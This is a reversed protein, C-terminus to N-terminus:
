KLPTRLSINWKLIANSMKRHILSIDTHRSGIGVGEQDWEWEVHVRVKGSGGEVFPRSSEDNSKRNNVM